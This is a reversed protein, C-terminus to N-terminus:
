IVPCSYHLYKFHVQFMRHFIDAKKILIAFSPTDTLSNNVFVVRQFTDLNVENVSRDTM